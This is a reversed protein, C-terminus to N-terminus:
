ILGFPAVSQGPVSVAACCLSAVAGCQVSMINVLDAIVGSSGARAAGLLAPLVVRRGPRRGAGFASYQIRPCPWVAGAPRSQVHLRRWLGRGRWLLPDQWPDLSRPCLPLRLQQMVCALALLGDPVSWQCGSLPLSSSVTACYFCVNGARRAHTRPLSPQLRARAAPMQLQAGACRSDEEMAIHLADNVAACFNMKTTPGSSEHGGVPSAAAPSADAAAAATASQQSSTSSSLGRLQRQLIGAWLRAQMSRRVAAALAM